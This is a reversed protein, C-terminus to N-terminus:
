AALGPVQIATGRRSWRRTPTPLSSHSPAWSPDVAFTALEDPDPLHVTWQTLVMDYKLTQEYNNM